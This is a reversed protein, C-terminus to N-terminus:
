NRSCKEADIAIVVMLAALADKEDSVDIIYTDTWHFIDKSITAVINGQADEITYDWEWFNGHIKWGMFDLNYTPKFIAFEKSVSGSPGDTIFIHFKPLFTILEQQVTGLENELSDFIKFRHGWALQGKVTFVTNENEDYIDYSDFWSIFRQRFLLKM